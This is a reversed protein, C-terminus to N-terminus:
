EGLNKNNIEKSKKNAFYNILFTVIVLFPIYILFSASFVMIFYSLRNGGGGYILASRIGFFLSIGLGSILAIVVQKVNFSLSIKKNKDQLETMDSYLGLWISRVLFYLSSLILLILEFLVHELNLGYYLYKTIMSLAALIVVLTHAERYIKNYIGEVREDKIENKKNFFMKSGGKSFEIYLINKNKDILYQM